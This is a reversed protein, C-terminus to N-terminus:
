SDGNEAAELTFVFNASIDDSGRLVKATSWVTGDAWGATKIEINEYDLTIDFDDNEGIKTDVDKVKIQIQPGAVDTAAKAENETWEIADLVKFTAANAAFATAPVLSVVMAAAMVMSIFKKM